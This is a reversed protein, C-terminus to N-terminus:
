FQLASWLSLNKQLVFYFAVALSVGATAKQHLIAPFSRKQLTYIGIPFRRKCQEKEIGMTGADDRVLWVMPRCIAVGAPPLNGGRCSAYFVNQMLLFAKLPLSKLNYVRRPRMPIKRSLDAELGSIGLTILLKERACCPQSKEPLVIYFM